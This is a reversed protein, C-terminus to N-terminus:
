AGQSQGGPGNQPAAQTEIRIATPESQVRFSPAQYTSPLYTSPITTQNGDRLQSYHPSMIEVGAENFKDQINQHLESYIEPMWRPQDTYANLQYSVYFDNLATQLVFPNPNPLIHGTALAADVLLKHIQRWPEDYGITVTTYLIVGGRVAQASYNVVSTTLVTGNPITVIEEKRTRIRTVLITKEFVEGKTNGVEVFDGIQFSRMYTLIMGAVANAVASSSGLSLLVGVFISIGQFAPSKSGPLYPFVIIAGLVLILARSLKATPGAWDPYFGRIQLRGAQIEGFVFSNLRILYHILIGIVVVLLLNPVYNVVQESIASLSSVFWGTITRSFERTSPFFGFVLTLYANLLVLIVAWRLIGVMTLLPPGFYAVPVRLRSRSALKSEAAAISKELGARVRRYARSVLFIALIIGLTALCAYLFGLLFNRWTHESRYRIVAQRFIESTQGALAQRSLGARQADGEWVWMLPEPGGKVLSWYPHEEVFISSAPISINEAFKLLRQEIVAAREEASYGALPATVAVLARHDLQVSATTEEDIPPSPAQASQPNPQPSSPLQAQQAFSTATCFAVSVLAIWHICIQPM